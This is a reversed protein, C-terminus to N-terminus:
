EKRDGSFAESQLYIKYEKKKYFTLFPPSFTNCLEIGAHVEVEM